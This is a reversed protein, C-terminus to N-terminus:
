FIDPLSIKQKFFILNDIETMWSSHATASAWAMRSRHDAAISQPRCWRLEYQGGSGLISMGKAKGGLSRAHATKKELTYWYLSKSEWQKQERISVINFFFAQTYCINITVNLVWLLSVPTVIPQPQSAVGMLGLTRRSPEHCYMLVNELNAPSKWIRM